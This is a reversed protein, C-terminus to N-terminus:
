RCAGLDSDDCLRTTRWRNRSDYECSRNSGTDDTMALVLETQDNSCTRRASKHPQTSNRDSNTQIHTYTRINTCEGALVYHSARRGPYQLAGVRDVVRTILATTDSCRRVQLGVLVRILMSCTPDSESPNITVNQTKIFFFSRVRPKVFMKVIKSFELM